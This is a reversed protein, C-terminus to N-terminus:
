QHCNTSNSASPAPCATTVAPAPCASVKVIYGGVDGGIEKKGCLGNSTAGLQQTQKFHSRYYTMGPDSGVQKFPVFDPVTTNVNNQIAAVLDVTNDYQTKNVSAADTVVRLMSWARYSGDRVHPFTTGPMAPCIGVGEGSTCYPLVGNTYTGQIPDVANLTLYGYPANLGANTLKSVNGYSFFTYGVSDIVNHVGTGVEEGTGIGRYRWGALTTGANMSAQLGLPNDCNTTGLVPTPTSAPLGACNQGLAAPNVGTEQSLGVVTGDVCPGPTPGGCRIDTFEQTNMTGSMPERQVVNVPGNPLDPVGFLNLDGETGSFLSQVSALEIGTINPTGGTVVGGSETLGSGLGNVNSRNVIYVIPSAGVDVTVYAPVPQNTIPDSGTINFNVPQAFSSSFSSLISTGVQTTCTTGTGYGLGTYKVSDLQNLVRCNAFHADEPRIDTFAVTVSAGNLADYVATPVLSAQVQGQFLGPIILGENATNLPGTTLLPDLQLTTRPVAFFSRNGVVSDVSIYAWVETQARNWVIWINGTQPAIAPITSRSDAIQACNNSGTCTGKITFYQAGGAPGGALQNWAGIAATQWMASSGAGLVKVVTKANAVPATIVAAALAAASLLTSVKM